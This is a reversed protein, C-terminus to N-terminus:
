GNPRRTRGQGNEPSSGLVINRPRATTEVILANFLTVVNELPYDDPQRMWWALIEFVGSTVFPAALDIPLWPNARPRTYATEEAIRKFEARMADAAGGNLLAAWLARHQQVYRCLDEASSTAETKGFAAQGLSLLKSVEETAIDELLEHKSGFRRFFTPYSVGAGDTIERIAIDELPKRELLELFAARLADISRQARADDPRTPTTTRPRAL